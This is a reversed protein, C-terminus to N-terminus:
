SLLVLNLLHKTVIFARYVSVLSELYHGLTRLFIISALHNPFFLPLLYIMRTLSVYVSVDDCIKHSHAV